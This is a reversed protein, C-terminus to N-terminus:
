LADVMDPGSKWFIFLSLSMLLTGVITPYLLSQFDPMTHYVMVDHYVRVVPTMPNLELFQRIVPSLADPTYVIPTLWFWMNLVVTMIQAVDRSFINLIGLTIGLGLSLLVIVAMAPILAIWSLDPYFGNLAILAAVCVLLLLNNILASGLIVLPIYIRPFKIKKLINAYELFMNVSRGLVESFLGWATIGSLLYVAYAGQRDIGGLKAGLVESLVLLYIAAMALPQLVFWLTGIKSRAVRSKFEGSIAAPIFHRNRWLPVLFAFVM